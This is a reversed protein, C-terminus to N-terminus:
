VVQQGATLKPYVIVDTYFGPGFWMQYCGLACEVIYALFGPRFGTLVGSFGLTRGLTVVIVTNTRSCASLPSVSWGKM